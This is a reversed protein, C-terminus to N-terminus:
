TRPHLQDTRPPEAAGGAMHEPQTVGLVHVLHGGLWGSIVLAVVAVISIGRPLVEALGEQTRLWFSAAQAVVIALNLVLHYRGVRQARADHISLLDLLGPVAALLAGVIGGGLTFYATTAWREDGTIVYGFDCVLSFVWLGIPITVLMPHIPHGAVTVRTSM